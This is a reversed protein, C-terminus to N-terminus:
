TNLTGVILTIKEAFVHAGPVFEAPIVLNVQGTNLADEEVIIRDKNQEVNRLRLLKELLFLRELVGSRIAKFLTDTIGVRQFQTRFLDEAVSAVNDLTDQTQM